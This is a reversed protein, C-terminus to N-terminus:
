PLSIEGLEVTTDRDSEEFTFIALSTSNNIHTPIQADANTLVVVAYRGPEINTFYFEGNREDVEAQPVEGITFQPITSVASGSPIPVLFIGDNASPAMIFLDIVILKGHLTIKNPDSKKFSLPETPKVEVESAPYPYANSELPPPYADNNNNEENTQPTSVTLTTIEIDTKTPQCGVFIITSFILLIFLILVRKNM